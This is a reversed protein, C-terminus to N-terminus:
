GVLKMPERVQMQPLPHAKAYALLEETWPQFLAFVEDVLELGRRRTPEDLAISALWRHDAGMTHGSEREYHFLGCYRLEVGTAAQFQQALKMMLGFLVNGTEEIAEILILRELASSQEMLATLRYTLLRTVRTEPGWLFNMWASGPQPMDFGLKALDELYWPWHHDDEYTHQNVAQQYENAAPESRLVYTNLDGFSLTFHAMCPYFALRQRADLREDRLYDFLPLRAYQQKAKMIAALVSRM